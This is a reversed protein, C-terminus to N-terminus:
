DELRSETVDDSRKTRQSWRELAPIAVGAWIIFVGIWALGFAYGHTEKFKPGQDAPFIKLQVNGMAYGLSFLLSSALARLERNGGCCSNLWASILPAIGGYASALFFMAMVAHENAPWAALVAYTTLQISACVCIVISRNGIADAVCAALLMWVIELGSIVTPLNNIQEVSYRPRGDITLSKLWLRMWTSVQQGCSLQMIGWALPFCYIQWCSLLRKVMPVSWKVKQADRGQEALRDISMQRENETMWWIKTSKPEAAFNLNTKHDINRDPPAGTGPCTLLGLIAVPIGLIFDFIFLWRWSAIGLRDHMNQYLGSQIYSSFMPGAGASIGFLAMRRSIESKRYWSGIATAVLRPPPILYRLGYITEVNKAAYIGLVCISWLMTCLPLWFRPSFFTLALTSFPSGIMIGVSFYTSMLNLENSYMKLDEKMGSFFANNVNSTDLSKIFCTLCTYTLIFVDLKFILRKEEKSTGPEHWRFFSRFTRQQQNTTDCDSIDRVPAVTSVTASSKPNEAM